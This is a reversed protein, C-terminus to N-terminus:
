TLPRGLYAIMRGASNGDRRHSYFLEADAVTCWPSVTIQRVGADRARSSLTERLDVNTPAGPDGLGLREVVDPGVEYNSGSVAVGCHMAFGEPSSGTVKALREVGCELIGAVIGRWGAHLLAMGGTVPDTLYIPVCDAVTVAMLVGPESTLHGDYGDLVRLGIFSTEHECVEAGHIQRSVAIGPFQPEFARGVERLRRLATDAAETTALSLNFEGHSGNRRTTVGAVLGYQSRWKSIEARELGMPDTRVLEREVHETM